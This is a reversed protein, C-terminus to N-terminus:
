VLYSLDRMKRKNLDACRHACRVLNIYASVCYSFFIHYYYFSFCVCVNLSFYFTRPAKGRVLSIATPLIKGIPEKNNSRPTPNKTSLAKTLLGTGITSDGNNGRREPSCGSTSWPPEIPPLLPHSPHPPWGETTKRQVARM